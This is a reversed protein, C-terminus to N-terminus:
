CLDLSEQKCFLIKLNVLTLLGNFFSLIVELADNEKRRHGRRGRGQNRQRLGVELAM